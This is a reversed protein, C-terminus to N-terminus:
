IAKIKTFLITFVNRMKIFLNNLNLHDNQYRYLRYLKLACATLFFPNTFVYPLEIKQESKFVITIALM